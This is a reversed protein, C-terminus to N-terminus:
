QPDGRLSARRPVPVPQLTQHMRNQWWGAGSIGLLLLGVLALGSSALGTMFLVTGLALLASATIAAFVTHRQEM